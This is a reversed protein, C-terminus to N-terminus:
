IKLVILLYGIGTAARDSAHTHLSESAPIIPEFGAPPKSTHRKTTNYKTLYLDRRRAPWGDLATGGLTTHRLTITFGRGHPPGPGSTATAGHFFFASLLSGYVHTSAAWSNQEVVPCVLGLDAGSYFV